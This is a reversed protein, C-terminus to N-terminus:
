LVSELVQQPTILEGDVRHVGVVEIGLRGALREIELRYQGLNLEAVVVREVGQMAERLAREPVPWLSLVTLASVAKGAARALGVAEHVSRATVGYSLLLTRAGPEADARVMAIEDVHAEIKAALHRNLRDVKAPDKTLYGAEDHTSTTFRLIHPGGYPSMPPVEDPAQIRYPVFPGEAPALRRPEACVVEYDGLDVTARTQVMEKDTAIFVPVRFREALNFAHMTLSYCEPITSPALAIIPYGGSTSWRMFTVDGQAVTTAGGTAPGLRQCNVIVMPVEAMIALGINESYLSIGPGSTATLVKRGAMAAGICFGMSAIEDEAQIGLGGVKPLERLMHVLIASAPTIPYGAFFDCGAALAGRAIAESGDIFERM